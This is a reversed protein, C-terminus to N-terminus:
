SVDIWLDEEPTPLDHVMVVDANELAQIIVPPAKWAAKSANGYRMHELTIRQLGPLQTSKLNILGLLVDIEYQFPGELEQGDVHQLYPQRQRYVVHIQQLLPPWHNIQRCTTTGSISREYHSIVYDPISVYELRSFQSFDLSTAGADLAWADLSLRKLSHCLPELGVTLEEFTAYRGAYCFEVLDKSWRLIHSLGEELPVYGLSLSQLSTTLPAQDRPAQPTEVGLTVDRLDLKILTPIWFLYLANDLTAGPARISLTKLHNLVHGDLIHEDHTFYNEYDIDLDQVNKIHSVFRKIEAAKGVARMAELEGESFGSSPDSLANLAVGESWDQVVIRAAKVLSSLLTNNEVSKLFLLFRRYNLPRIPRNMFDSPPQREPFAFSVDRYLFPRTADHLRRCALILHCLDTERTSSPQAVLDLIVDLIENPCDVLGVM